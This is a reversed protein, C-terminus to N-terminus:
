PRLQLVGSCQSWGPSLCTNPGSMKSSASSFILITLIVKYDGEHRLCDQLADKVLLEKRKANKGSITQWNLRKSLAEAGM